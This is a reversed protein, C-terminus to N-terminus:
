RNELETIRANLKQIENLLLAPLEHYMVTLPKGEKDLSVLYPATKYVEEAILGTLQGLQPDQKSTYTVPRLQYIFSSADKMDEINDKFRESSALIGLQDASSILVATGTVTIGQIGSIFTKNLQNSGTGTGAGIRLAHSEAATGSNNICINDSESGTYGNGAGSGLCSNRVGTLLNNLSANGVCTNDSGSSLILMGQTGVAVNSSNTAANLAGSGIGVNNVGTSNTQLATTGCATNNTGSSNTNLSLFGIGVNNNGNSAMLAGTGVAVSQVASTNTTLANYGVATNFNGTNNKLALGGIATCQGGATGVGYAQYGFITNDTGSSTGNAAQYGMITNNTGSWATGAGSGVATLFPTAGNVIISNNVTNQNSANNTVM